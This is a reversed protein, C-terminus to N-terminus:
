YPRPEFRPLRNAPRRHHYVEEPTRGGLWTHSRHCNYWDVFFQLERRFAERQLPVLLIRTGQDKLTRIFREVVAISGHKGIAGFRPRIGRRRRWTQFGDCWFQSGKDCILYKPATKANAITRGLFARVQESSPPDPSVAFGMARRSFHDVVVAVWWCFPGRQPLSFPLWTAWFGAATPVVALDVHWVHGPYKATVARDTRTIEELSTPM